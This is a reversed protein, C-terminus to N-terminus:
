WVLREIQWDLIEALAGTLACLGLGIVGDRASVDTLLADATTSDHVAVYTWSLVLVLHAVTERLFYWQCTQWKYDVLERVIDTSFVDSYNEDDTYKLLISLLGKRGPLAVGDIGFMAAEAPVKLGASQPFISWGKQDKENREEVLADWASRLRTVRM